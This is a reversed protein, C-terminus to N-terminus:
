NRIHMRFHELLRYAVADLQDADLQSIDQFGASGPPLDAVRAADAVMPTCVIRTTTGPPPVVKFITLGDNTKLLLGAMARMERRRDNAVQWLVSINKEAKIQIVTHLIAEFIGPRDTARVLLIAGDYIEPSFRIAERMPETLLRADWQRGVTSLSEAAEQAHRMLVGERAQWAQSAWYWQEQLVGKLGSAEGRFLRLFDAQTPPRKLRAKQYSAIKRYIAMWAPGNEPKVTALYLRFADDAASLVRKRLVGNVLREVSRAVDLLDGQNFSAAQAIARDLSASFRVDGALEAALREAGAPGDILAQRRGLLEKCIENRVDEPLLRASEGSVVAHILENVKQVGTVRTLESGHMLFMLYRENFELVQVALDSSLGALRRLPGSVWLLTAARSCALRGIRGAMQADQVARLPNVVNM